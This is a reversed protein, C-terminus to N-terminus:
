ANKSKPFLEDYVNNLSNINSESLKNIEAIPLSIETEVKTTSNDLQKTKAIDSYGLKGKIDGILERDVNDKKTKIDSVKKEVKDKEKCTNSVADLGKKSDSKLQDITKNLEKNINTATELNSQSTALQAKLVSATEFGFKSLITDTNSFVLIGIFGLLIMMFIGPLTLLKDSVFTKVITGIGLGIM